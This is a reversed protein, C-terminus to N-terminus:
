LSYRLVYYLRKRSRKLIRSVTSRNVGLKLAIQGMTLGQGYYLELIQKQRLTLVEQQAIRLNRKLRELTEDNDGYGEEKWKAVDVIWQGGPGDISLRRAGM